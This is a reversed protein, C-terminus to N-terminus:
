KKSNGAKQKSRSTGKKAGKKRQFHGRGDMMRQQHEQKKHLKQPAQEHTKYKQVTSDPLFVKKIDSTDPPMSLYLQTDKNLGAKVVADNDNMLGLAIQQMVPKGGRHKYVVNLSDHYSHVAELPIYLASDVYNTHIINQTTMAPRLSSDSQNIQITVQFVKTSSNPRQEGINAVQTVDGTLHKDPYADLSIDAKQGTHVKQIDVESVYTVSQMVSFDPLKAVVPNFFSVQDGEKIKTGDRRNRAYIVMGNQPAHITFKDSVKKLNKIKKDEDQVKRRLNQIKSEAQVSALKLSQKQQEYERKAKDLDYQVKKQTAPSEYQSQKVAIKAQQVDFKSSLVSNRAQSLTKATDLKADNLDTKRQKLEQQADQLNDSIQSRDLVAVVDGKKVRTGEPVLKAIKVNFARISRMGAAPGTIETSNKAQLEGNTTITVQFPGTKPKVFINTSDSSSNGLVLWAIVILIVLVGPIIYKKNM